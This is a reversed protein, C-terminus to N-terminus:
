FNNLPHSPIEFAKDAWIIGEGARITNNAALLNELLSAGLAGLFM